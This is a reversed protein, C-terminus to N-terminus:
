ALVGKVESARGTEDSPRDHLVSRYLLVAAYNLKNITKRSYKLEGSSGGDASSNVIM